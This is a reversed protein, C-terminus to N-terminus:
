PIEQYFFFAPVRYIAKSSTMKPIMNMYRIASEYIVDSKLRLSFSSNHLLHRTHLFDTKFSYKYQHISQAFEAPQRFIAMNM